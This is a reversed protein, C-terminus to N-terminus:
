SGLFDAGLSAEHLIVQSTGVLAKGAAHELDQNREKIGNKTM